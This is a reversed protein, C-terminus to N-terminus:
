GAPFVLSIGPFKEAIKSRVESDLTLLADGRDLALAVYVADYARLRAARAAQTAKEILSADISVSFFRPGTVLVEVTNLPEVSEGRRALAALVELRCFSPM